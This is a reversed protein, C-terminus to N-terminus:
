GLSATKRSIDLVRRAAGGATRGGAGSAEGERRVWGPVACEPLAPDNLQDTPLEMDLEEWRPDSMVYHDFPDLILDARQGLRNFLKAQIYASNALNDFIAIRM